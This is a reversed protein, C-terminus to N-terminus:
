PEAHLACCAGAPRSLEHEKSTSRKVESESICESLSYHEPLPIHAQTQRGAQKFQSSIATEQGGHTGVMNAMSSLYVRVWNGVPIPGFCEAAVRSMAFHHLTICLICLITRAALVADEAIVCSFKGTHLATMGKWPKKPEAWVPTWNAMLDLLVVCSRGGDAM